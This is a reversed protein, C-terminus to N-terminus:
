PKLPNSSQWADEPDLGVQGHFRAQTAHDAIRFEPAESPGFRVRTRGYIWSPRLGEFSPHPDLIRINYVPDVHNDDMWRLLDNRLDADDEIRAIAPPDCTVTVLEGEGRYCEVVDLYVVKGIVAEYDTLVRAEVEERSVAHVAVGTLCLRELPDLRSLANEAIEAPKIVHTRLTTWADIKLSERSASARIIVGGKDSHDRGDVGGPQSVACYVIQDDAGVLQGLVCMLEIPNLRKRAERVVEDVNVATADVELGPELDSWNFSMQQPLHDASGTYVIRDM